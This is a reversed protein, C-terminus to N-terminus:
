FPVEDDPGPQGYDATPEPYQPQQSQQRDPQRGHSQRSDQRDGSDRGGGLMQLNECVVTLKTRKQGSQRDDWNETKLRGEILVSRGKQLYEGAVEATRGFLVCDVFTTSETKQNTTKNFYSENIALGLNCVATGGTTYKVDPDRTLNGVLLVKNLNPV